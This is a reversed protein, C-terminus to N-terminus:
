NRFHSDRNGRMKPSFYANDKGMGFRSAKWSNSLRSFDSEANLYSNTLECIQM